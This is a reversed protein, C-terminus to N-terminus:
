VCKVAFFFFCCLNELKKVLKIRQLAMFLIVSLIALIVAIFIMILADQGAGFVIPVFWVFIVGSFNFSNESGLVTAVLLILMGILVLLFGFILLVWLKQFLNAGKDKKM